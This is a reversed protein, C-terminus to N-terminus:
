ELRICSYFGEQTDDVVTEFCQEDVIKQKKFFHTELSNLTKREVVIFDLQM